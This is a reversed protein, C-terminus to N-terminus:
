SVWTLCEKTMQKFLSFGLDTPSDKNKAVLFRNAKDHIYGIKSNLFAYDTKLKEAQFRTEEESIGEDFALIIRKCRLGKLYKAQTKSIDHGGLALGQKCGNSALQLVSKESELVFCTGCQQIQKYHDCFGYLTQSKAFPIYMSWRENIDCKRSNVRGKAGILAGDFSYEPIVIRNSEHDLRIGYEEQTTLAVGDEFWMKSLSDSKPLDEETYTKLHLEPETESAIMDKYFHHFPYQIEIDVPKYGIVNSVYELAKPFSLNKEEMVLTYINGKANHSFNQFTLNAKLVSIGSPNDGDINCCTIYTGRDRINRHGLSELILEILDPELIIKDSLANVNM